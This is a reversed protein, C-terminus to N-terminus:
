GLALSIRAVPMINTDAAIDDYSAIALLPLSVLTIDRLRARVSALTLICPCRRRGRVFELLDAARGERRTGSCPLFTVPAQLISIDERARM